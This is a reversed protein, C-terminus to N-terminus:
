RADPRFIYDGEAAVRGKAILADRARNFAKLKTDQCDGPRAKRYFCAKWDAATTVTHVEYTSGVTATTGSATLVEDLCALAAQENQSLSKPKEPTTIVSVEAKERVFLTTIPDGDDDMGLEMQELDFGWQMGDPDDKAHVVTAIRSGDPQKVVEILADDAGTLSGHGRPSSGKSSKTGHHVIAVHAGTDHRLGTVNAVFTGMDGPANEDGGAMLRSLTDLVILQAAVGTTALRLDDLHGIKHLLDVPQAIFHFNQSDGHRIRLAKIRNAIGGEGEAAVYLARTPTVRRGFVSRGLSLMYAVYLMLFSKGCKPPGVWISIEAPSILGKLLYGRHASNDLDKTGLVLLRGYPTGRKPQAQHVETTGGTAHMREEPSMQDFPIM